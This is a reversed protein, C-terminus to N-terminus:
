TPTATGSPASSAVTTSRPVAQGTRATRADDRAPERHGNALAGVDLATIALNEMSARGAYQPDFLDTWSDPPTTIEDANYMIGATGADVPVIYIEGDVVVGPLEKMGPWIDDWHELRSTDLPQYMGKNVMELTAEDVCSNM